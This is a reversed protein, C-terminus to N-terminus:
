LHRNRGTSYTLYDIVRLCCQKVQDTLGNKGNRTLSYKKLVDSGQKFDVGLNVIRDLVIYVCVCVM